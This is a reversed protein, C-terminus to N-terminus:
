HHHFGGFGGHFDDRDFDRHFFFPHGFRFDFFAFVPAPYVAAPPAAYYYTPPPYYYRYPPAVICGYGQWYYYGPPCTLNPPYASYTSGYQATAPQVGFLGLGMGAVAALIRFRHWGSEM